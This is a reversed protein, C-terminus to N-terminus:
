EEGFREFGEGGNRMVGNGHCLWMAGQTDEMIGFFMNRETLLSTPIYKEVFELALDWRSLLANMDNGNESSSTWLSGKSDEYVYGTFATSHQRYRMGDYSYLGPQGALWLHGKKDKIVCRVNTFPQGLENKIVKFTKDYFTCAEGRTAIWLMGQGDEVICNVDNDSLGDEETLNQFTIGNEARLSPDYISIGGMTGIWLKGAKDEYFCAVNDNVLGDKETYNRFTNGDYHYLGAGITGFWLDGRQDMHASFVHYRRLSDKNTFNTFTKGDYRIIGEWTALWINGERDEIANRTISIPGYSRELEESEVFYQDQDYGTVRQPLSPKENVQETKQQGACSALLLIYLLLLAPNKM